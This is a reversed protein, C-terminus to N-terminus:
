GRCPSLVSTVWRLRTICSPPPPRSVFEDTLGCSWSSKEVSVSERERKSLCDLHRVMQPLGLHSFIFLNNRHIMREKMLAYKCPLISLHCITRAISSRLKKNGKLLFLKGIITTYESVKIPNVTEKGDSIKYDQLHWKQLNSTDSLFIFVGTSM